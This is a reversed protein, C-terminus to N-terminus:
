KRQSGVRIHGLLAASFKSLGQTVHSCREADGGNEAVLRVHYFM